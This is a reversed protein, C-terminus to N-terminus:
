DNNEKIKTINYFSNTILSIALIISAYRIFNVLLSCDSFAFDYYGTIHKLIDHKFFSYIGYVIIIGRIIELIARSKILKQTKILMANLNLGLRLGVLILSIYSFIKHFKIILSSRL